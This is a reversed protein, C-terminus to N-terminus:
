SGEENQLADGMREDLLLNVSELVRRMELPAGRSHCRRFREGQRAAELTAHLELLPAVLRRRMRRLVLLSMGFSLVGVLAAVWAGAVGLRQAEQDAEMMADRNIGILSQLDGVLPTRDGEDAGTTSALRDALSRLVPIEASETVNDRARALAEDIRKREAASLEGSRSEALTALIEEAALMSDVNDLLIREVAPGMRALLGSVGFALLVNLCVLTGLLLSLERRLEM